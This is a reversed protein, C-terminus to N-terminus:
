KIGKANSAVKRSYYIVLYLDLSVLLANTIYALIVLDYSYYVKHLIGSLYGVLVFMLFLPSKGTAQKTKLMKIISIPWSIGFCILMVVEFNSM